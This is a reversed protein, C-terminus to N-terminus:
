GRNNCAHIVNWSPLPPHWFPLYYITGDSLLAASYSLSSRSCVLIDALVMPVFTKELPTNIHLLIDDGQYIKQFDEEEGQSYIHFLPNELSHQNRLKEIIDLYVDNPTNAGDLRNDHPNPRRIHVAINLRTYDFYDNRNKNGRFLRKMRKLVMSNACEMLHADFFQIYVGLDPGRLQFHIDKNVDFHNILNIMHELKNLFEHDGNYNHEMNIFPTYVFKKHNMEAYIASCIITQMQAGFGDSRYPNTVIDESALCEIPNLLTAFFVSISTTVRFLMSLVTFFYTSQM